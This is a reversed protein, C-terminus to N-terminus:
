RLAMNEDFREISVVMFRIFYHVIHVFDGIVGVFCVPVYSRGSMLM